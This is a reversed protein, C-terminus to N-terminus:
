SWFLPSGRRSRVAHNCIKKLIVCLSWLMESFPCRSMMSCKTKTLWWTWECLREDRRAKMSTDTTTVGSVLWLCEFAQYTFQVMKEQRTEMPELSICSLAYWKWHCKENDSRCCPGITWKQSWAQGSRFTMTVNGDGNLHASSATGDCDQHCM